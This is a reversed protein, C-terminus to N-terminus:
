NKAPPGVESVIQELAQERTLKGDLHDRWIRLEIAAIREVKPYYGAVEGYHKHEPDILRRVTEGAQVFMLTHPVDRLERNRRTYGVRELRARLDDLVGAQGEAAVDLAHTSEHLITELLQTGQVGNLGVFCVGGGGAERRHTVGQPWPAEAVLYLPIAMPTSAIGLSKTMYAFCAAEKPAFKEELYDQAEELRREHEPWVKELFAAEAGALARGLRLVHERPVSRGPEIPLPDPFGEIERVLAAATTWEKVRGEIAGWALPSKLEDQLARAAAVAEALGAVDPVPANSEALTRALSHLDVLPNLHVDLHPGAAHDQALLSVLAALALVQM